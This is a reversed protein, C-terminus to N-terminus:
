IVFYEYNIMDANLSSLRKMASISYTCFTGRLLVPVNEYYGTTACM